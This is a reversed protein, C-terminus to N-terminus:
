SHAIGCSAPRYRTELTGSPSVVDARGVVVHRERAVDDAACLFGVSSPASPVHRDRTTRGPGQDRPLKRPSTVTAKRSVVPSRWACSTPPSVTRSRRTRSSAFAPTVRASIAASGISSDRGIGIAIWNTGGPVGTGSPARTSRASTIAPISSTSSSARRSASHFSIRPMFLDNSPGTSASILQRNEIRIM